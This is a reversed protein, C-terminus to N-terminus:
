FSGGPSDLLLRTASPWGLAKLRVELLRLAQEIAEADATGDAQIRLGLIEVPPLSGLERGLALAEAIGLSHASVPSALREFQDGDYWSAPATAGIVADILIVHDRVDFHELLAVGPRDSIEFILKSGAVSSPPFRHRLRDIVDWAISDGGFPSGIGIVALRM